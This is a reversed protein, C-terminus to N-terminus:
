MKAISYIALPKVQLSEITRNSKLLEKRVRKKLPLTHLPGQCALDDHFALGDNARRDVSTQPTKDPPCRVYRRQQIPCGEAVLPLSVGYVLGLDDLTLLSKYVARSWGVSPGAALHVIAVERM